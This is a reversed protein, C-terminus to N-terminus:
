ENKDGEKEILFKEYLKKELYERRIREQLKKSKVIQHITNIYGGLDIKKIGDKISNMNTTKCGVYIKTGVYAINLGSSIANSTAIIKQTRVNYLELNGDKEENYFLLHLNGIVINIFYSILLQLLFVTMNKALADKFKVLNKALENSNWGQELFKQQTTANLFPIPLGITCYTDSSIHMAQRILAAPIRKYDDIGAKVSTLFTEFFQIKEQIKPYEVKYTPYMSQNITMTSTM